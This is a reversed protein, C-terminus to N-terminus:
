NHGLVIMESGTAFDGAGTNVLDIRSILDSINTWKAALEVRGPLNAAGATGQSVTRIFVMKEQTAINEVDVYAVQRTGSGSNVFISSTSTATTDAAGNGSYRYTYNNGTDNNFRLVANVASSNYISIVLTLYKRAPLSQVSITDGASGLTARGIEEWWITGDTKAYTVAEDDIKETTIADDDLGTGAALALIDDGIGNGWESTIATFPIVTLNTYPLNEGNM